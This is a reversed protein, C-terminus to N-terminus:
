PPRIIILSPIIVLQQQEVGRERGGERGGEGKRRRKTRRSFGACLITHQGKQGIGVKV